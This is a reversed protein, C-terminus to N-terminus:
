RVLSVPPEGPPVMPSRVLPDLRSPGGRLTAPVFNVPPVVTLEAAVAGRRHIPPQGEALRVTPPLKDPRVAFEPGLQIGGIGDLELGDLGRRIRMSTFSRGFRDAPIRWHCTDGGAILVPARIASM